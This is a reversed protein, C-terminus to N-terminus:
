PDHPEHSQTRTSRTSSGRSAKRQFVPEVDAPIELPDEFMSYKLRIRPFHSLAQETKYLEVRHDRSANRVPETRVKSDEQDLCAQDGTSVSHKM